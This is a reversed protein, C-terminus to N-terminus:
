KEVHYQASDIEDYGENDGETDKTSKDSDIRNGAQNEYAIRNRELAEFRRRAYDNPWSLRKAVGNEIVADYVFSKPPMLSKLEATLKQITEEKRLNEIRLNDCMTKIEDLEERIRDFYYKESMM